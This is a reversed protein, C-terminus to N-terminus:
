NREPAATADGSPRFRRVPSLSDRNTDNGGGREDSPKLAAFRQRQQATLVKRISLFDGLQMEELRDQLQRVEKRKQKIMEESAAPDFMLERLQNRQDKLSQQMERARGSNQGRIQQIRQRQEDSLNLQSFDLPTKGFLGGSLRSSGALRERVAARIM